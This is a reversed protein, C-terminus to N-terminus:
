PPFDDMGTYLGEIHKSLLFLLSLFIIKGEKKRRKEVGGGEEERIEKRLFLKFIRILVCICM